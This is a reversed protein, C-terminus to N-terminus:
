FISILNVEGLYSLLEFLNFNHLKEDHDIKDQIKAFVKEKKIKSLYIYINFQDNQPLIIHFLKIKLYITMQRLLKLPNLKQVM